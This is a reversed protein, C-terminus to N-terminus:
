GRRIFKFRELRRRPRRAARTAPLAKRALPALMEQSRRDWMEFYTLPRPPINNSGNM